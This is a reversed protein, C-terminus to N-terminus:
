ALTLGRAAGRQLLMSSIKINRLCEPRIKFSSELLNIDAEIDLSQIYDLTRQSFAEEAQGFSLWALDYSSVALSDPITLGHDIPVLRYEDDKKQVLINCANRDLNMLRLDLVAIKHVEDKSFLDSSFNEVPGESKIFQQLSGIKVQASEENQKQSM